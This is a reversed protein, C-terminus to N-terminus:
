SHRRKRGSSCLKILLVTKEATLTYKPIKPVRHKTTNLKPIQINSAKFKFICKLKPKNRKLFQRAATLTTYIHAVQIRLTGYTCPITPRFSLVCCHKLFRSMECFKCFMKVSLHRCYLYNIHILCEGVMNPLCFPM